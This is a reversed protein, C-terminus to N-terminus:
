HRLIIKAYEWQNDNAYKLFYIGNPFEGLNVKIIERGNNELRQLIKGSIDVVYIENIKKSHKINVIGTTPNPYPEIWVREKITKTSPEVDNSYIVSDKEEEAIQEQEISETTEEEEVYIMDMDEKAEIEVKCDEIFTYQALLRLILDNLLEVEYDDISPKTHKGGIGSDDTLFIYTGNSALAISRMLYELGKDANYGTGSAVLPIIRIGKAAAESVAKQITENIKDTKGPSEDLVLFMLRARSSESWQMEKVSVRLAEEVAETGGEGASQQNIFDIGQDINSLFDSTKTVYSNGFCRYFVSGLRINMDQNNSSFKEIIDKLEVKLYRIEDSMSGTADVTFLIDVANIDDCTRKLKITNVGQHFVKPKKMEKIFGDNEVIIKYESKDKSNEKFMNAWLEAKGTNDSRTKWVIQDSEDLLIVKCDVVPLNNENVLQVSYRDEPFIEWIGRYNKLVDKSIDDWLEWKSFDNIEGATLLGAQYKETSVVSPEPIVTSQTPANLVQVQQNLNNSAPLGTLQVQTQQIASQPLSSSGITRIGDIYMVTQNVRSSSVNAREGDASFVGGVSGAVSNANQGPMKRISEATVTGGSVTQDRNILPVKYSSVVIEALQDATAEMEIDLFRIVDPNIIVGKIVVTKYGVYTARVDYKGPPLPKIVYNGDFDSQAGGYPNGEIELIINAFPLPEKTEKDIIRGKISGMPSFSSSTLMLSFAFLMIIKVKQASFGHLFGDRIIEYYQKMLNHNLPHFIHDNGKFNIMYQLSILTSDPYPLQMLTQPLISDTFPICMNNEHMNNNLFEYFDFDNIVSNYGVVLGCRGVIKTDSTIHLHEM